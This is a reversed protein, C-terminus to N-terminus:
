KVKELEKELQDTRKSIMTTRYHEKILQFITQRVPNPLESVLQLYKLGDGAADGLALYDLSTGLSQALRILNPLNPSTKDREYNSLIGKPIKSIEGLTSLSWGKKTRLEKVRIGFSMPRIESSVKPKRAM